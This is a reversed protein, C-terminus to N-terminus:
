SLLALVAVILSVVATIVSARFQWSGTIHAVQIEAPRQDVKTTLDRLDNEVKKRKEDMRDCLETRLSTLKAQFNERDTVSGDKVDEM